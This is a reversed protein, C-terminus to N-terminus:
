PGTQVESLDALLPCDEAHVARQSLNSEPIQQTSCSVALKCSEERGNDFDVSMKSWTKRIGDLKGEEFPRTASPGQGIQCLSGSM